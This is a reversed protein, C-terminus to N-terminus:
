RWITPRFIVSNKSSILGRMSKLYSTLTTSGSGIKKREIFESSNWGNRKNQRIHNFIVIISNTQAIFYFTKIGYKNDKSLSETLWDTLGPYLRKPVKAYLKPICIKASIKYVCIIHRSKFNCIKVKYSMKFLFNIHWLKCNNDNEVKKWREAYHVYIESDM